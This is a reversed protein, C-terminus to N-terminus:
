LDGGWGLELIGCGNIGGGGDVEWKHRQLSIAVCRHMCAAASPPSAAVLSWIQRINARWNHGGPGNEGVGEGVRSPACNSGGPPKKRVIPASQWRGVWGGVGEDVEPGKWQSTMVDMCCKWDNLGRVPLVEKGKEKKPTRPTILGIVRTHTFPWISMDFVSCVFHKSGVDVVLSCNHANKQSVFEAMWVWIYVTLTRCCRLTGRSVNLISWM